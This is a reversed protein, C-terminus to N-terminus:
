SNVLPKFRIRYRYIGSIGSSAEGEAVIRFDDFHQQLLPVIVKYIQGAEYDVSCVIDIELLGKNRLYNNTPTADIFVFSVFPLTGIDIETLMNTQM